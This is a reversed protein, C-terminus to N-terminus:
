NPHHFEWYISLYFMNWDGGILFDKPTSVTKKRLKMPPIFSLCFQSAGCATHYQTATLIWKTAGEYSYSEYFNFM